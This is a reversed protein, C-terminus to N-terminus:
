GRMKMTEDRPHPPAPSSFAGPAVFIQDVRPSQSLKWALAHERGGNGILLIRLKQPPPLPRPLLDLDPPRRPAPRTRPPARVEPEFLPASQAMAVPASDRSSRRLPRRRPISSSSSGWVRERGGARECWAVSAAGAQRRQVSEPRGARTGNGGMGHESNKMAQSEGEDDSSDRMVKAPARRRLATRAPLKSSPSSAACPARCAEPPPDSEM